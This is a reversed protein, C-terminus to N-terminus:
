YNKKIVNILRDLQDYSTYTFTITGNNNKKNNLIVRMGIKETLDNETSIVNPDKSKYKSKSGSKLIRILNETQRVSLKKKIIKEALFTANELGVLIKAHGQTLKNNRILEIIKEPLSLM